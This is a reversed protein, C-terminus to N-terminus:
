CTTLISGKCEVLSYKYHSSTTGDQGILFEGELQNDIRRYICWAGEDVDDTYFTITNPEVNVAVMVVPTSLGERCIFNQDFRKFFIELTGHSERLWMLDSVRLSGNLHHRFSGIMYRDQPLSWNEEGWGDNYEGQWTGTLWHVDALTAKVISTAFDM